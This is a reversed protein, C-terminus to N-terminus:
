AGPLVQKIVGLLQDTAVPKVLWGTAGATKAEDRKSRESETTLMLMPIFRMGATKRAERIFSIGDMNPMNLDSIILNPRLGGTLKTLAESGDAATEVGFGAKVVITKLSLLMTASDDGLMVTTTM